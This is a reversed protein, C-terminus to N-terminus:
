GGHEATSRVDAAYAHLAPSGGTHIFLVRQGRTWEGRRVLGILGAMTKGTYVPDLLVGELSALMRVAEVMEPTPLSYGPGVWADHVVILDRAVPTSAELLAATQEALTHVLTEQEAKPRRVSIGALPIRADASSLGVALGAHNCAWTSPRRL